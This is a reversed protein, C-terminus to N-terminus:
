LHSRKILLISKPWSFVNVVLGVAGRGGGLACFFKKHFTACRQGLLFPRSRGAPSYISGLLLGAASDEAAHVSPGGAKHM